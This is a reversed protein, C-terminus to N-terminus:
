TPWTFGTARGPPEAVETRVSLRCVEGTESDALLDVQTVPGADLGPPPLVSIRPFEGILSVHMVSAAACRGKFNSDEFAVPGTDTLWWYANDITADHGNTGEMASEGAAIAM